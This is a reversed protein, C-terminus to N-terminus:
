IIQMIQDLSGKMTNMYKAMAQFMQQFVLMQAAENNIDVGSVTDREAMLGNIIDKTSKDKMEALSVDRSVGVSIKRYYDDVKMSDLSSLKMNAVDAIRKVNVNDTMETGLSSAIMSPADKIRQTISIDSADRGSFFTNVGAAALLGSTDSNGIAEVTFTEGATLDGPALSIKLDHNPDITLDTGPSYGSGVDLTNVTQGASNQVQLQLGDTVGVTGTGIINFTYTEDTTSVYTGSISAEATGTYGASFATPEPLVGPLFDFKRDADAEIHLSDNRISASIGSLSDLKTAISALTDTETDVIISERTIQGTTTDTIRVNIGGDTVTPTFTDLTTSPMAWGTLETFSGGTGSDENYAPVGQTHFQNVQTIVTEALNNLDGILPSLHDNKLSILGGLKGGPFDPSFNNLGDLSIGFQDEGIPSAKLESSQSGLVVAIGGVSVDIVGDERHRTSIGVLESLETIAQDRRDKLNNTDASRIDLSKIQYNMDAIQSTLSNVHDIVDRAETVVQDSMDALFSRTTHFYSVMAQANNILEAQTISSQPDAAMSRFSTFFDGLKTGLNDETLEGLVSEISKLASLERSVQGSASNQTLLEQELLNDILRKADGSIVGSEIFVGDAGITGAPRLEVRQRHYGETAANAINNGITQLSKQAAAIGSLGISFGDM